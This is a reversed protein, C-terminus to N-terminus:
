CSEVTSECENGDNNVTSTPDCDADVAEATRCDGHALHKIVSSGESSVCIVHGLNPPGKKERHCIKEKTAAYAKTVVPVDLGQTAFFTQSAFTLLGIGGIFAAAITLAVLKKKM